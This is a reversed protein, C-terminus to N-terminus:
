WISQKPGPQEAEVTINEIYKFSGKYRREQASGLINRIKWKVMNLFNEVPCYWM